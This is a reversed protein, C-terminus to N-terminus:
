PTRYWVTWPTTRITKESPTSGRRDKAVLVLLSHVPRYGTSAVIDKHSPVWAIIIIKGVKVLKDYIEHIVIHM